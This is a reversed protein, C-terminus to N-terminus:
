ARGPEIVAEGGDRRVIIKTCWACTEGSGHRACRPRDQCAFIRGYSHPEAREDTLEVLLDQRADDISDDRTAFFRPPITIKDPISRV